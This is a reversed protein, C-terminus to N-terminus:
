SEHPPNNTGIRDFAEQPSVESRLISRAFELCERQSIPSMRGKEVVERRIYETVIAGPVCCGFEILSEDMLPIAPGCFQVGCKGLAEHLEPTALAKGPKCRM